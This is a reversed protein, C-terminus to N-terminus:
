VRIYALPSLLSQSFSGEDLLKQVVASKVMALTWSTM